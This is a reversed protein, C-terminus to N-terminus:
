SNFFSCFKPFIYCRCFWIFADVILYNKLLISKINYTNICKERYKTFFILFNSELMSIFRYVTALITFISNSWRYHIGIILCQVYYLCYIYFFCFHVIVLKSHISLFANPYKIGWRDWCLMLLASSTVLAGRCLNILPHKPSSRGMNKLDAGYKKALRNWSWMSLPHKPSSWSSQKM